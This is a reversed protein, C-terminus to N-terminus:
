SGSQRALERGDRDTITFTYTQPSRSLWNVRQDACAPPLVLQAATPYRQDLSNERFSELERTLSNACNQAAAQATVQRVDTPLASAQNAQAQQLTRLQEELRDVRAQLAATQARAGQDQCACLLLPLGLLALLLPRTM